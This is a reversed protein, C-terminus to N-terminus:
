GIMPPARSAYARYSAGRPAHDSPAAIVAALAVPPLALQAFPPPPAYTVAGAQCVLCHSCAHDSLPQPARDGDDGTPAHCIGDLGPPLSFLSPQPLALQLLLALSALTAIARNWSRWNGRPLRM